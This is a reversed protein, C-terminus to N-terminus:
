TPEFTHMHTTFMGQGTKELNGAVSCRGDVVHGVGTMSQEQHTSRTCTTILWVIASLSGSRTSPSGTSAAMCITAGCRWVWDSDASTIGSYDTISMEGIFKVTFDERKSSNILKEHM